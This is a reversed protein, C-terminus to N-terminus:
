IQFKNENSDENYEVYFDFTVEIPKMKISRHVTDNYKNVNDNLM